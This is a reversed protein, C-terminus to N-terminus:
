QTTMGPLQIATPDSYPSLGSEETVYAFSVNLGSGGEFSSLDLVFDVIMIDRFSEIIVDVMWHYAFEGPGHEIRFLLSPNKFMFMELEVPFEVNYLAQDDNLQDLVPTESPKALDDTHFVLDFYSSSIPM